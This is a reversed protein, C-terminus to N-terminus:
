AEKLFLYGADNECLVGDELLKRRAIRCFDSYIETWTGMLLWSHIIDITGVIVSPKYSMGAMEKADDENTLEVVGHFGDEVLYLTTKDSTDQGTATRQNVRIEGYNKM